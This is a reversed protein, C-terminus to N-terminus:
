LASGAAHAPRWLQSCSCQAHRATAVAVVEFQPRGQRPAVFATAGRSALPDDEDSQAM